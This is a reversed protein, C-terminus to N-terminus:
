DATTNMAQEIEATVEDKKKGASVKALIGMEFYFDVLRATKEWFTRIRKRAIEETDDARHILPSHDLDCLNDNAPPSEIMNYVFNCKPCIRRGIIRKVLIDEPADFYVVMEINAMQQLFRAQEITRPYGDVIFGNRQGQLSERLLANVLDDPVLTGSDMYQKALVGLESGVQIADRLIDGTSIRALHYREAVIFAQTGKGAGPPGLFVLRKKM